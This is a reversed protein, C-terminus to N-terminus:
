LCTRAEFFTGSIDVNVQGMRRQEESDANTNGFGRVESEALARLMASAKIVM